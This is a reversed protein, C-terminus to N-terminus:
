FTYPNSTIGDYAIATGSSQTISAISGYIPIGASATLVAASGSIINTFAITATCNTIPYYMFFDGARTVSGSIYTGGGLGYPHKHIDVRDAM